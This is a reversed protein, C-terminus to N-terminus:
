SVVEFYPRRCMSVGNATKTFLEFAKRIAESENRAKVAVGCQVRGYDAFPDAWRTSTWKPRRVAVYEFGARRLRRAVVESYTRFDGVWTDPRNWRVLLEVDWTDWNM